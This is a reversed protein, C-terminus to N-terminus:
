NTTVIYLFKKVLLNYNDWDEKELDWPRSGVSRIDYGEDSKNEAFALAVCWKHDTNMENWKVFEYSKNMDSYRLEISGLQLNIKIDKNM